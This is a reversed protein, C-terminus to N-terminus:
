EDYRWILKHHGADYVKTYGNLFMNESESKEPDFGDGLFRSLKHKQCKQRSFVRRGKVYFYNPKTHSYLKLGNRSYVGGNSHRADAFTMVQSPSYERIFAKFLRSFGGVVTHKLSCAYRIIEWEHKAHRSLTLSAVIKNDVKLCYSQSANRHGQLHSSDMFPKVSSNDSKSIECKRAFIRNSIGLRHSVMSKVVDFKDDIEHDWFQYLDIGKSKALNYKNLHKSPYNDIKNNTGHWYCGNIEIGFKHDPIWIDIEFGDLASRDNDVVSVNSPITDLIKQHPKSIVGPCKSCGRGQLHGNPSQLFEGHKRCIISVYEDWKRYEVKSYDYKDGHIEVAKKVFELTSLSNFSSVKDVGCKPCGQKRNIHKVPSQLFEGHDPCIIVIRSKYSSYEVKSYDYRDGHIEEAQLVFKETSSKNSDALRIINDVNACKLCGSCCNIHNNPAQEFEGHVPCIIVVKLFSSIYEVKSYDYKDGHIKKSREIFQETTLRTAM